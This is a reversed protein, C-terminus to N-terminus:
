SSTRESWPFGELFMQVKKRLHPVMRSIAKPPFPPNAPNEGKRYLYKLLKAEENSFIAPKAAISGALWLEFYEAAHDEFFSESNTTESAREIPSQRMVEDTARKVMQRWTSRGDRAFLELLSLESHTRIVSELRTLYSKFLDDVKEALALLLGGRDVDSDIGHMLRTRSETFTELQSANWLSLTVDIQRGKQCQELLRQINTKLKRILNDAKSLSFNHKESLCKNLDREADLIGRLAISIEDARTGKPKSATSFIRELLADISSKDFYLIATRRSWLDPARAALRPLQSGRLWIILALGLKSVSDRQFNLEGFLKDAAGNESSDTQVLHVAIPRGSKSKNLVADVLSGSFTGASISISERGTVALEKDITDRFMGARADDDCIALLFRPGQGEQIEFEIERLAEDAHSQSTM